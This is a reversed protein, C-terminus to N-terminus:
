PDPTPTPNPSLVTFQIYGLGSSPCQMYWQTYWQM